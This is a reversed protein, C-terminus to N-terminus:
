AVVAFAGYGVVRWPDGTTDASTRLDLLEVRWGRRQALRLAARLGTRGCAAGYGIEEPRLAVISEATAMDLRQATAEDQYHSLDTSVVLLADDLVRDLLDAVTEVGVDGTLIPLIEPEGITAGLYPLQVELCHEQAHPAELQPVTEHRIVKFSGTPIRWREASLGAVGSFPTFHSPGVLVVRSIERGALLAYASAAIPGSYVLGAHPVILGVLRGDIPPPVAGALHRDVMERLETASAPYFSGAVVPGHVREMGELGVPRPLAPPVALYGATVPIGSQSEAVAAVSEEGDNVGAVLM